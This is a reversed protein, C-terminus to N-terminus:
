QLAIAISEPIENIQTGGSTVTLLATSNTTIQLTVTAVDSAMFSPEGQMIIIM